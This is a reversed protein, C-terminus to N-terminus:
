SRGLQTVAIVFQDCFHYCLLLLELLFIIISIVLSLMIVAISLFIIATIVFHFSFHYCLSLLSLLFIIIIIVFSLMIFVICVFHYYLSLLSLLYVNTSIIYRKFRFNINGIRISPLQIHM